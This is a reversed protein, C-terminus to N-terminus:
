EAFDGPAIIDIIPGQYGRARMYAEIEESIHWAMNVLPRSDSNPKFEDDSKIPIRTGPVYHGIKGSGPKEYVASVTSADLNLMKIPIAARGPFAKGELVGHRRLAEDLERKKNARWQHIQASLRALGAGFSKEKADLVEWREHGDRSGAGDDRALFVRINGGYREPFEIKGIRMGLAEAIRVFSTYSYTRPHEHYFTDFQHRALISGLYHNEIVIMTKPHALIKLARLVAPLDEIHAFVNTFTVIDPQGFQTCFRMAVDEDIFENLVRHGAAQADSAACTPEIGFTNAGTKRFISLLSGDNCGIDLVKAGGVDGLYEQCAAVLQRMGNLVDATHRSRYHYTPPFLERKPIQFRQCATRCDDCYLIEIPHEECVRADGLPVLDDCM